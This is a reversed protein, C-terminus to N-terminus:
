DIEGNEPQIFGATIEMGFKYDHNTKDVNGFDDFPMFYADTPQTTTAKNYVVINNNLEENNATVDDPKKRIQAFHESANFEYRGTEDYKAKDFLHNLNKYVKKYKHDLNNDLLYSLNEYPKSSDRREKM